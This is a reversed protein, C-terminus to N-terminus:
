LIKLTVNNHLFICVAANCYIVAPGSPVRSLVDVKDYPLPMLCCKICLINYINSNSFLLPINVQVAFAPRWIQNQQNQKLLFTKCIFFQM